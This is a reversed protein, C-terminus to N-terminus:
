LLLFHSRPAMFLNAFQSISYDCDLLGEPVTRTWPFFGHHRLDVVLLVMDELDLSCDSQLLSTPSLNHSLSPFRREISAIVLATAESDHRSRV